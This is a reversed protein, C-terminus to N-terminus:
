RTRSGPSKSLIYFAGVASDDSNGWKATDAAGYPRDGANKGGWAVMLLIEDIRFLLHLVCRDGRKGFEGDYMGVLLPAADAELEKGTRVIALKIEAIEVSLFALRM